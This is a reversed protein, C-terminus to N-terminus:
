RAALADSSQTGRHALYHAQIATFAAKPEWPMDPYTAGTGVELVKVIGYSAIDLDDRPCGGPRHPLQYLAFTFVFAAAVGESEFVELLEGLYRAQEAEDRVYDGDLTVAMGTVKDWEVIEGARAGREGAGRYASTGFETIAVPKGRAVVARIGDRYGDAIEASRYLDVSIIDFPAWDVNEFPISAYTVKGGFREGVVASARALFENIRPPIERILERLRDPTALLALREDLRDGPLFGKNLLSLEAGAVFVVQAGHQRLREAREACDALLELMEDPSLDCTFPSFWVELGLEAALRAATELRDPDGGTIRVATCGLDDRIVQLERRVISPEFAERSTRGANIFGTDYNIGYGHM